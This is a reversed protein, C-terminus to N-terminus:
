VNQTLRIPATIMGVWILLSMIKLLYFSCILIDLWFWLSNRIQIDRMQFINAFKELINRLVNLLCILFVISHSPESTKMTGLEQRKEVWKLVDWVPNQLEQWGSSYGADAGEQYCATGSAPGREFVPQKM